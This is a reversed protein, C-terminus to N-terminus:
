RRNCLSKDIRELIAEEGDRSSKWSFGPGSFGLDLMDCDRLDYWFTTAERRRNDAGGAKENGDLIHNFDRIETQDFKPSEETLISFRSGSTRMKANQQLTGALMM